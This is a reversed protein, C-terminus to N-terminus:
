GCRGSCAEACFAGAVSSPEQASASSPPVMAVSANGVAMSRARQWLLRVVPVDADALASLKDSLWTNFEGFNSALMGFLEIRMSGVLASADDPIQLDLGSALDSVVRHRCLVLM